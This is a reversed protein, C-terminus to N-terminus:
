VFNVFETYTNHVPFVYSTYKIKKILVFHLVFSLPFIRTVKENWRSTYICLHTHNYVNM